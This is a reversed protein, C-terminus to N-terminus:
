SKPEIQSKLEDFLINYEVQTIKGSDLALELEELIPKAANLTEIYSESGCGARLTPMSNIKNRFKKMQLDHSIELKRAHEMAHEIRDKLLLGEVSHPVKLLYEALQYFIRRLDWSSDATLMQQSLNPLISDAKDASHESGGTTREIGRILREIHNQFDLGPDVHIANRYALDALSPPLDSASPMTAQGILVPIIPVSRALASELEIRVFDAPDDIRRKGNLGGDIWLQGIIALVVDCQNIEQSIHNRFDVGLPITDIDMFVADRGFNSRLHDLIRGAIAAVDDRRYSIFIKPM